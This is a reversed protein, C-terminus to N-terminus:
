KGDCFRISVYFDNIRVLEPCTNFEFNRMYEDNICRALYNSTLIIGEEGYFQVTQHLSHAFQTKLIRGNNM